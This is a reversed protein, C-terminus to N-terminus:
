FARGIYFSVGNDCYYTKDHNDEHIVKVRLGEREIVKYMKKVAKDRSGFIYERNRKLGTSALCYKYDYLCGM